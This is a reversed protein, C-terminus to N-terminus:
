GNSGEHAPAVIEYVGSGGQELISKPLYGTWVGTDTNKELYKEEVLNIMKDSGDNGPLYCFVNTVDMGEYPTVTILVGEDDVKDLDAFGVVKRQEEGVRIRASTTIDTDAAIKYAGSVDTVGFDKEFSATFTWTYDKISESSDLNMFFTDASIAYVGVEPRVANPFPIQPIEVYDKAGPVLVSASDLIYGEDPIFYVKIDKLDDYSNFGRQSFRIVGGKSPTAGYGYSTDAAFKYTYTEVSTNDFVKKFSGTVTYEGAGLEKVNSITLFLPANDLIEDATGEVSFYLNDADIAKSQYLAKMSDVVYDINEPTFVAVIKNPVSVGTYSTGSEIEALGDVDDLSEAEFDDAEVSADYLKITGNKVETDASITYLKDTEKSLDEFDAGFTWSGAGKSLIVDKTLVVEVCGDTYRLVTYDSTAVDSGQFKVVINSVLDTTSVPSFLVRVQEPVESAALYLSKQWDDTESDEFEQGGNFAVDKTYFNITGHSSGNVLSTDVSFRYDSSSSSGGGSSGGSSGTTGTTGSGSGTGTVTVKTGSTTVSTNADSTVVSDVKGDGSVSVGTAKNSVTSIEGGEDAVVKTGEATEAITVTGVKGAVEIQSSPAETTISKVEALAGVFVKAGEADATVTIKNVTSNGSVTLTTGAGNVTVTGTVTANELTVNGDSAGQSILLENVTGTVTVDGAVVLTIGSGTATVTSGAKNAYTSITNNLITAISARNIQAKPDFRNNGVGNIYGAKSMADIYGAAWGATSGSDAFSTATGGTPQIGLARALIVTARERSISATPSAYGKGDGLIYGAAACKNVADAYWATSPVDKFTNPASDKLNMLNSITQALEAVTMQSNPNFSGNSGHLVDADAWRNIAAEGWHGSTDNFSAGFASVTMSAVAVCGALIAAIKKKLM